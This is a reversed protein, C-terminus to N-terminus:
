NSDRRMTRRERSDFYSCEALLDGDQAGAEAIEIYQRTVPKYTEYTRVPFDLMRARTLDYHSTADVFRLVYADRSPLPGEELALSRHPVLKNFLLADGPKFPREVLSYVGEKDTVFDYKPRSSARKNSFRAPM